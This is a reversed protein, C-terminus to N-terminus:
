QALIMKKTQQFSDTIIQYLYIGSAVANGDSGLGNWKIFYDGALKQDNVLTIIEKGQLNYVSLKVNTAVPVHYSIYTDPNFPNPYNQHLVYGIQLLDQGKGEPIGTSSNSAGPTPTQFFEWGGIGDPNRGVSVDTTQIRFTLSDIATVGDSAFLGIQEGDGSLKIEVHM